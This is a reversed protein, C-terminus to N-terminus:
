KRMVVPLYPGCQPGVRIGSRRHVDPEQFASGCEPCRDRSARLDYGCVRCRGQRRRRQAKFWRFLHLGPLICFVVVFPWYGFGLVWTTGIYEPGNQLFVYGYGSRQAGFGLLCKEPALWSFSAHLRSLESRNWEFQSIGPYHMHILLRVAGRHTYFEFSNGPPNHPLKLVDSIWYSRIWGVTIALGLILSVWALRRMSLHSRSHPIRQHLFRRRISRWLSLLTPVAFAAACLWSPFRVTYFVVDGYTTWTTQAFSVGLKEWQKDGHLQLHAPEIKRYFFHSSAVYLLTRTVDESEEPSISRHYCFYILGNGSRLDYSRTVDCRGVMHSSSWYFEECSQLGRVWLGGVIIFGLASVVVVASYLLYLVRMLVM